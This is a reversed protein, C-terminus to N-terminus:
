RSSHNQHAKAPPEPGNEISRNIDSSRSKRCYVAVQCALRLHGKSRPARLSRIWALALLPPPLLVATPLPEVAVPSFEDANPLPAVAVRAFWCTGAIVSASPIEREVTRYFRWWTKWFVPAL